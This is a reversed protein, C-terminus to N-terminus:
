LPLSQLFRFMNNLLLCLKEVRTDILILYITNLDLISQFLMVCLRRKVMTPNLRKKGITLNTMVMSMSFTGRTDPFSELCMCCM